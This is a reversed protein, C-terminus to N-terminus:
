SKAQPWYARCKLLYTLPAAAAAEMALMTLPMDYNTLMDSGISGGILNRSSDTYRM